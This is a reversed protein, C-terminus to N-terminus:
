LEVLKVSYSFSSKKSFNTYLYQSFIAHKYKEKNINYNNLFEFCQDLYDNKKLKKELYKLM